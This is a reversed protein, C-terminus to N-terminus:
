TLRMCARRLMLIGQDYFAILYDGQLKMYITLSDWTGIVLGLQNVITMMANRFTLTISQYAM